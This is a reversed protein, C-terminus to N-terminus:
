IGVGEGEGSGALGCLQAEMKAVSQYLCLTCFAYYISPTHSLHYLFQKVIVLGQLEFGWYEWVRLFFFSFLFTYYILSVM